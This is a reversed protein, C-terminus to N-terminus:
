YSLAKGIKKRRKGHKECERPIELLKRRRRVKLFSILPVPSVEM